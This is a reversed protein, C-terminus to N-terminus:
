VEDLASQIDARRRELDEKKSKSSEHVYVYDQNATEHFTLDRIRQWFLSDAVSLVLKRFRDGGQDRTFNLIREALKLQPGTLDQRCLV